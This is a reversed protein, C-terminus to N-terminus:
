LRGLMKKIKRKFSGKMESMQRLSRLRRKTKQSKLHRGGQKRHLIKGTKTIKFRKLASKRTKQKKRGM